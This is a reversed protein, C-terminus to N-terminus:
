VYLVSQPFFVHVRVGSVQVIFPCFIVFFGKEILWVKYHGYHVSSLLHVIKSQKNENENTIIHMMYYYKIVNAVYHCHSVSKCISEFAIVISYERVFVYVRESRCALWYIQISRKINRLMILLCLLLM